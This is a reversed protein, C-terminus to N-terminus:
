QWEKGGNWEKLERPECSSDGGIGGYVDEECPPLFIDLCASLSLIAGSLILKRM